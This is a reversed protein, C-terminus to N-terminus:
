GRYIGSGCIKDTPFIGSLFSPIEFGEPKTETVFENDSVANAMEAINSEATYFLAGIFFLVIVANLWLFGRLLQALHWM